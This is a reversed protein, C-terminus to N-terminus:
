CSAARTPIIACIRWSRVPTRRITVAWDTAYPFAISTAEEFPTKGNVRLWRYSNGNLIYGQRYSFGINYYGAKPATVTWYITSGIEKWTAGGVYNIKAYVPDSPYVKSSGIDSGTTLWYSSKINAAEGEVYIDDGTYSNEPTFAPKRYKAAQVESDLKISKLNFEGVLPTIAIKHEGATLEFEYPQVEFNASSLLYYTVYGDYPFQEASFQNGQGDVRYPENTTWYRPLAIGKFAEFPYAGDVQIAVELDAIQSGYAKYELGLAYKGDQPVDVTVELPETKVDADTKIETVSSEAASVLIGGTSGFVLSLVLTLCLFLSLKKM